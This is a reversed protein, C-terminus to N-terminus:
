IAQPQLREHFADTICWRFLRAAERNLQSLRHLVNDNETRSEDFYDADIVYAPEDLGERQELGHRLRVAGGQDDLTFVVVHAAEKVAGAMGSALEAAVHSQVIQNWPTTAIELQRRDIINRYRLGVRSIFSPQYTATLAALVPVLRARFDEWRVYRSTSLAIFDRNLGLKWTADETTFQKTTPIGSRLAQPIQIPLGIEEYLPYEARVREQFASPDSEIRLIAPFRLQCIVEELTNRGYVVRPSEPFTM